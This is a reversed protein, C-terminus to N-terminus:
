WKVLNGLSGVYNGHNNMQPVTPLRVARKETLYYMRDKTAKTNLPCEMERWGPLLEDLGRPEICAGSLIHSGFDSGKEILCISLDKNQEKALQKLRIASSLGSPGGGIILVDYEMMERPSLDDNLQNTQSSYLRSIHTLPLTHKKFTTSFKRLIRLGKTIQM